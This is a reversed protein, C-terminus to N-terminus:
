QACSALCLARRCMCRASWVFGFLVHVVVVVVVKMIRMIIMIIMIMIMITVVMQMIIIMITKTKNNRCALLLSIFVETLLAARTATALCWNKECAKMESFVEM